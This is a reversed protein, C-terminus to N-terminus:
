CDYCTFSCCGSLCMVDAVCLSGNGLKPRCKGDESTPDCYQNAGNCDSAVDCDDCTTGDCLNTKCDSDNVCTRGSDCSPCTNGCDVDTESGSDLSGNNCGPLYCAFDICLADAQLHTCHANTICEVCNGAGDCYSGGDDTCNAGTAVEDTDCMMEGNCIIELCDTSTGPCDSPDCTPAAGASGGTTATTTSSSRSTDGGQGGGTGITGGSGQEHFLPDVELETTGGVLHCSALVLTPLAIFVGVAPTVRGLM